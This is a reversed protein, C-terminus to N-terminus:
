RFIGSAAIFFANLLVLLWYGGGTNSQYCEKDRFYNGLWYVILFAFVIQEFRM